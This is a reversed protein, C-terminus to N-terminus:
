RCPRGKHTMNPECIGQRLVHISTLRVFKSPLHRTFESFISATRGSRSHTRCREFFAVLWRWQQHYEHKNKVRWCILHKSSGLSTATSDYVPESRTLLHTGTSAHELPPTLVNNWGLFLHKACIRLWNLDVLYPKRASSFVVTTSRQSPSWYHLSTPSSAKTLFLRLERKGTPKQVFQLNKQTSLFSLSPVSMGNIWRTTTPAQIHYVPRCRWLSEQAEADFQWNDAVNHLDPLLDVCGAWRSDKTGFGVDLVSANMANWQMGM